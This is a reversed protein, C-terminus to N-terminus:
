PNGPLEVLEIRIGGTAAPDLFAVMTGGAGPRPAEDLLPLGRERCWQLSDAVSDVRVAIHDLGPGRQRLRSAAPVDPATPMIFEFAVTGWQVWLIELRLAPLSESESVDMGFQGGFLAGIPGLDEVLFGVHDVQAGKKASGFPGSM